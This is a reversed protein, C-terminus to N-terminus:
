FVLIGAEGHCGYMKEKPISLGKGSRSAATQGHQPEEPKEEQAEPEQNFLKQWVPAM